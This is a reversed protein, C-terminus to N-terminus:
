EGQGMIKDTGWRRRTGTLAPGRTHRGGVAAGGVEWGRWPAGAGGGRGRLVNAMQSAMLQPALSTAFANAVDTLELASVM